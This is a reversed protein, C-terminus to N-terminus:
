EGDGGEAGIQKEALYELLEATIARLADTGAYEKGEDLAERWDTLITYGANVAVTIKAEEAATFVDDERLDALAKVSEAFALAHTTYVARPDSYYEKLATCGQGLVALVFAVILPNFARPPTRM